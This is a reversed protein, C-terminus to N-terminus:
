QVSNEEWRDPPITDFPNKRSLCADPDTVRSTQTAVSSRQQQQQTSEQCTLAILCGTEKAALSNQQAADM